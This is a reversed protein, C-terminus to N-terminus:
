INLQQLEPDTQSAEEKVRDREAARLTETIRASGVIQSARITDEAAERSSM